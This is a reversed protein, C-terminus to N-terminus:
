RKRGVVHFVHHQKTGGMADSGEKEVEDLWEVDFPRLLAEVEGRTRHSKPRVCTWEDRDGFFQGAFRGGTQLRSVIWAWLGDFAEPKCFPLAFSANILDVRQPLGSTHVIDEMAVARVECRERWPSELNALTRRVAEPHYDLAVVRWGRRLLERTDRGEGCAIDVALRRERPAPEREFAEAARILTDRPPQTAVADFYEPWDRQYDASLTSRKAM